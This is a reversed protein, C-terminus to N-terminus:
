LDIWDLGLAALKRKGPNGTRVSWGAMRYYADRWKADEKPDFFVGATPGTGRLPQAFKKPLVDAKRDIGERANFARLMNLRREGVQMFEDLTIDWGTAARLMAVMDDPGYLEWSPGWVFQCLNYSDLASFFVQTIYTLRVKEENMSGPPPPKNLGIMAMRKLYLAPAGEEYCPDHEHSQHDAGFPNVAYILSLSKKSHPMHAPAEEGKVTILYDSANKGIRKAARESGEALVDGLGERKGIMELVHVLAEANGFKLAIGGTDKEGILGNEFCEMAFAVTAGASITDLGYQNCLQNALAIANLDSVGCYSGMTSITEYEPGGYLPVVPTGQFETQVVRKCRVLCGYCTDREKLITASMTEGSIREFGEFQGENWNRTPLTGTANQFPVISATGHAGLGSVDPIADYNEKGLKGLRSIAEGDVPTMKKKGRVAVARLNKSGMVAGMGTRGNARNCMNILCAIRSLKEGAPGIQLVQIREDGLEKRLLGEVEGTLKGWLHAADRLEAQGDHIWLYVPKRAKGRIVIGDFGAFKLEAPWFGGAQADGIAGTLPSKAAATIRSQGSIPLGTPIGDFLTLVNRPSFADTGPPVEKLIYYLGMASGGGYTRYFEESPEEVRTKGRTLDVHLIRGNYCRAM